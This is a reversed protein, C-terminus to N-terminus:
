WERVLCCVCVCLCVCVCVVVCLLSVQAWLVRGDQDYLAVFGNASSIVRPPQILVYDCLIRTSGRREGYSQGSPILSDQADHCVLDEAERGTTDTTWGKM